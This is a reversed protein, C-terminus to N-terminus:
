AKRLEEYTRRARYSALHWALQERETATARFIRCFQHFSWAHGSM